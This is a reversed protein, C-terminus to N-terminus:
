SNVSVGYSEVLVAERPLRDGKNLDGGIIRERIDRYIRQYHPVGQDALPPSRAPETGRVRRAPKVPQAM